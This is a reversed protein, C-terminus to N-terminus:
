YIWNLPDPQVNSGIECLKGNVAIITSSFSIMPIFIIGLIKKTTDFCLGLWHICQFCALNQPRGITVPTKLLTARKSCDRLTNLGNQCFGIMQEHNAIAQDVGNTNGDM